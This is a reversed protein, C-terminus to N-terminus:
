GNQSRFKNITFNDEKQRQWLFSTAEIWHPSVLFKDNQLAWHSKKTGPNISVVHTVSLDVETCCTAGLREAMKWIPQDQAQSECPFLGSFVIKCGQLIEQRIAKLVQRVDRSSIDSGLAPDFFMQHVRKLVNLITALTGDTEREDKMSVSLSKANSGFQRCSSAFFHYRELQILNGKHKHWVAETDDLIVVISEAGLVVDLGKQHRQTCDSQTIVKSDFYIKAPDLLKVIELAYSREAMTYVYMDFISSAEKLFNHVFPRLKTLMHMSGLKFLSRDPDDKMSDVQRLLYEEEPCIDALRTSNLLTHDLDLILILKKAHLSKKQDVGRLREMERTGLRLDKHIYALAVGSEDDEELKGCRMCLGKFFGPHPPCIGNEGHSSTGIHEQNREVMTSTELDALNKLDEVKRRKSRQEQLGSEDNDAEEEEHPSNDSSTLELEADLFAAFDESSSSSQLPSEAALSM